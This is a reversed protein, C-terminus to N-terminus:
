QFLTQMFLWEMCILIHGAMLASLDTFVQCIVDKRLQGLTDSGIIAPDDFGTGIGLERDTFTLLFFGATCQHSHRIIDEDSPIILDNLSYLNGFRDFIEQGALSDIQAFNNSSYLLACLTIFLSLKTIKKM